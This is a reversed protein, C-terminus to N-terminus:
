WISPFCGSFGTRLWIFWKLGGQQTGKLYINSCRSHQTVVHEKAFFLNGKMATMASLCKWSPTIDVGDFYV